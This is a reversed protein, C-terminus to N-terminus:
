EEPFTEFHAATPIPSLWRHRMGVSFEMAASPVSSRRLKRDRHGHGPTGQHHLLFLGDLWLNPLLSLQDEGQHQQWRRQDGTGNYVKSGGRIEIGAGQIFYAGV